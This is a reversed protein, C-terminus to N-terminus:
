TLTVGENSAKIPLELTFTAGKGPGDSNAKLSGGMEMAALGCSHLGFGHGDKRTTFGHAFIRELNEQAIGEGNDFVSITLTQGQAVEIHLTIQSHRDPRNDMASCANKILNVLILLVRHKDLQLVPAEAFDKLVEIRRAALLGANMRLADEVLARIQVTEVISSAGAYSQQTAVIEKIHEVSKTLQALEATMSQQELALTDVLQNLYGPLFKGKEDRSIFDGLDEAHENMLKVARGLGSIKSTSLKLTVLSASVNVSNLVNGVNHLVNTAIEAMGAQRATAVLQSQAERLEQTREQVRQELEQYLTSNEISIAAQSILLELVTIRNVTFVNSSLNNEFYALGLLRGQNMVPLCLVSKPKARVVYEDNIFRHDQYVDDLILNDHTRHVFNVVGHILDPFDQLPRRVVASGQISAQAEIFLEGHKEFILVGREAGANEMLTSMLTGLLKDLVIEQSIAHNAKIVTAFDLSSNGDTVSIYRTVAVTNGTKITDLKVGANLLLEGFEQELLNTKSSAGWRRYAYYADSLYVQAVRKRGKQLYFLAAFELALAEDHIFKGAAANEISLDYQTQADADRGELRAQEASMLQYRHLFNAPGNESWLKFKELNRKLRENYRTKEPQAVDAYAKTIALSQYFFHNTTSWLGIDYPIASETLEATQLAESFQGLMVQLGTKFVGYWLTGVHFKSDQFYQVHEAENFTDTDLSGPSKTLGQLGLLIQRHLDYANIINGDKIDRVFHVYKDSERLVDDLNDGKMTRVLIMLHAAWLSYFIDGIQPGTTYSKMYYPLNSELHNFYPNLSNAMMNCVKPTYVPNVFKEENLTKGLMGFDFGRRYNGEIALLMGHLVYGMASADCNGYELSTSVMWYVTLASLKMDGAFYAACWTPVLLDMATKKVPDKMAPLEVLTAVAVGHLRENIGALEANCARTKEDDSRPVNFNLLTLGEIGAQLAKSFESGTMFLQVRTSYATAKDAQSRGHTVAEMSLRDSAQFNGILYQCEAQSNHLEFLLEYHQRWAQPGLLSLTISFHQVAAKNAAAAKARKGAQFNLKALVVKESEDIVLDIGINLHRTVEFLMEERQVETNCGALLLRGIRLHEFKRDQEPILLYAAQQVRDHLFRYHANFRGSEIEERLAENLGARLPEANKSSYTQAPILEHAAQYDKSIPVILGQILAPWIHQATVHYPTQSVTSLMKLDFQSGICAATKLFDMCRKPLHKLRASMLEVINNTIGTSQLEKIDWRWKADDPSLTLQHTEHLSYLLQILFFPNGGTKEYLLQALPVTHEQSSRLTGSILAGADGPTLPSLVIASVNTKSKRIAQVALMFPHAADVENDRYAAIVFLHAINSQCLLGELLVLSPNDAWQLDDLFIVLSHRAQALVRVFNQFVQNFRSLAETPPLTPVAPQPGILQELLPIVDVIIQGNPGLADQVQSRWSAVQESSETLISQVMQDFAQALASYPVGRDFQDYKGAIFYGKQRVIPKHVERVLSSKGIGSYGGVLLLETDGQVVRDFGQLLTDVEAERGFIHQPIELKTSVDREALPFPNIEGREVWQSLCQQLDHRLGIASQYRDAVAKSMLRTVIDSIVQPIEENIQSLPRPQRAIHAHVLEMADTNEFPPMGGLLHYFTAGLSYLDTKFDLTRNMRGTQEPSIYALTGEFGDPNKLVQTEHSIRTSIGFDIIKVEHTDPNFLINTPSIDKHVIDYEHIALLGDTVEIAIELFVQISIKKGSFYHLIPSGGFDELVLLMRNHLRELSYAQIVQPSQLGQLIDFENRLSAAQKLPPYENASYKIVVPLNDQQRVARMVVTSENRYIEERAIFGPLESM